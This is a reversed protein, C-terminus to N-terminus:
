PAAEVVGCERLAKHLALLSAGAHRDHSVDDDVAVAAVLVPAIENLAGRAADFTAIPDAPPQKTHAQAIAVLRTAVAREVRERASSM